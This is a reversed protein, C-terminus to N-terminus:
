ITFMTNANRYANEQDNIAKTIEAVQKESINVVVAYCEEECNDKFPVIDTVQLDKILSYYRGGAKIDDAAFEAINVRDASSIEKEIPYEGKMFRLFAENSTLIILSSPDIDSYCMVEKITM